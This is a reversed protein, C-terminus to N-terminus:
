FYGRLYLLAGTIRNDYEFRTRGSEEVVRFANNGLAAGIGVKDWLRYEIGLQTDNYTGSLDDFSLAFVETKLFWGFRPSMSYGLSFSIVPLPLSTDGRSASVGSSTSEARLDLEVQTVHLGAGASLSVKDSDYFRWLYGIKAIEYKLNSSVFAGIPITIPDGNEDVWEIEDRLSLSSDTAIRYWSIEMAHRSNFRYGANLQLVTQTSDLGLANQPNFAVGLDFDRSTLMASSDFRFVSYAGVSLTFREEPEDASAGTSLSLLSSVLVVLGILGNGDTSTRCLLRGPKLDTM